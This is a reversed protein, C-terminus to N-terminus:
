LLTVADIYLKESCPTSLTTIACNRCCIFFSFVWDSCYQPLTINNRYVYQEYGAYPSGSNTCLTTVFRCPFTIEQGAGPLPNLTYDQNLGCSASVANLSISAPAPSGACDRYFTVTVEYTRGSIWKYQLDAGSVHTAFTKNFPVSSFLM